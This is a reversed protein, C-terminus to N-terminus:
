RPIEKNTTWKVVCGSPVKVGKRTPGQLLLSKLFRMGSVDIESLAISGADLTRLATLRRVWAPLAELGRPLKLSTFSQLLINAGFVTDTVGCRDLLQLAAPSVGSLDLDRKEGLVDYLFQDTAVKVDEPVEISPYAKALQADVTKKLNLFENPLNLSLISCGEPLEVEDQNVDIAISSLMVTQLAAFMTLDLGDDEDGDYDPLHLHQVTQLTHLADPIMSFGPPLTLREVPTQREMRMKIATALHRSGLAIDLLDPDLQLMDLHSSDRDFCAQLQPVFENAAEITFDPRAMSKLEELLSEWLPSPSRQPQSAPAEHAASQEIAPESQTKSEFDGSARQLREPIKLPNRLWAAVGRRMVQSLSTPDLKTPQPEPETHSTTPNASSSVPCAEANPPEGRAVVNPVLGPRPSDKLEVKAAM